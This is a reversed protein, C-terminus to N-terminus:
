RRAPDNEPALGLQLQACFWSWLYTALGRDIHLRLTQKDRHCYLFVMAGAFHTAASPGPNAPDITTARCVMDFANKGSLQFVHLGASTPTVAFGEHHWGAVLKERVGVVLLRDRAIRVSYAAGSAIALAGVGEPSVGTQKGFAILEGSVLHQDLAPVSSIEIGESALCAQSWNPLPAWKTLHDIM